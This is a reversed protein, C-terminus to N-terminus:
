RSVSAAEFTVVLRAGRPEAREYRVSGGNAEVLHRVIFLGLGAGRIFRGFLSPLLEEPIGPGRDAVVLTVSEAAREARIEVPPDGYALANQLLNQLVATVHGRDALASVDEDIVVLVDGDPTATDVVSEVVERLPVPTQSATVSGTDLRFLLQLDNMMKILRQTNKDIKTALERRIDEPLDPWDASLLEALSAISSIPQAVDHTLM